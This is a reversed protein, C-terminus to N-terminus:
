QRNLLLEIEAAMKEAANYIVLNKAEMGGQEFGSLNNAVKKCVAILNKANLNKQELMLGSGADVLVKANKFQENHSVWPIPILVAPKGLAALEYVTNAGARSIVFDATNFVAGIKDEGFYPQLIYSGRGEEGETQKKLKEYDLNGCQHIVNFQDLLQPLAEIVASNIVRAGQKGGTIYITPVEKQIDYDRLIKTNFIKDRVPLGVVCVKDSPFYQKSEEWTVYIKKAFKAIFRNAWGSVVTQEHTVSPIGLLWGAIVVPVALYGGWSVILQPRIKLLWFMAQLFGFPIRLWEIPNWTRHLKGAKLNYFPLGLRKITKYEASEEESGHMSYKHGFWYIKCDASLKEIVALAPTHHGGTFVIRAQNNSLTEQQMVTIVLDSIRLELYISFAFCSVNM